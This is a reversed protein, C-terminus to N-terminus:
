EPACIVRSVVYLPELLGTQPVGKYATAPQEM